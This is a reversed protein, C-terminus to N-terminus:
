DAIQGLCVARSRVDGLKEYVPLEEERRIRLAEDLEGRAMLVDAIQGLTVARSRVDGLMEFVPLQEERRIRLAEDLEGRAMLVDAIKGLTVARSRVDGLKDYVPLEEERRIRLAEDLEGRAMLVDAIRGWASAVGRRDDVEVFQDRALQADSLAAPIQGLRWEIQSSELRLWANASSTTGHSEFYKRIDLLRQEVAIRDSGGLFVPARHIADIEVPRECFDLVATRWAWLDPAEHAWEAVTSPELWFILATAVKEALRERSRNLPRLIEPGKQKLWVGAGVVHIPRSAQSLIGLRDVLEAVETEPSIEEVVALPYSDALSGILLQRYTQSTYLAIVFQFGIERKLLRVLRLYEGTHRNDIIASRDHKLSLALPEQM